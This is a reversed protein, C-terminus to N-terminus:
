EETKGKKEIYSLVAENIKFNHDFKNFKKLAGFSFLYLSPAVPKFLRYYFTRYFYESSFSYLHLCFIIVSSLVVYRFAGAFFCLWRERPSFEERKFLLAAIRRLISFFLLIVLFIVSFIFFELYKTNLFSLFDVAREALYTYYHFSFWLAFIIGIVKILENVLGRSVATYLIKLCLVLFIIDILYIRDIVEM